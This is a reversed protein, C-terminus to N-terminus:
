ADRVGADFADGIARGHCRAVLQDRRWAFRLLAAGSVMRDCMRLAIPERCGAARLDPENTPSPRGHPRM